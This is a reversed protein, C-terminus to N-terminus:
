ACWVTKWPQEHLWQLWYSDTSGIFVSFFIIDYTLMQNKHKYKVVFLSTTLKLSQQYYYISPKCQQSLVAVGMKQHIICLDIQIVPIITLSLLLNVAGIYLWTRVRCGIAGEHWLHNLSVFFFSCDCPVVCHMNPPGRGIFLYIITIIIFFSLFYFHCFSQSFWM